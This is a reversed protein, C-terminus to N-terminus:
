NLLLVKIHVTNFCGSAQLLEGVYLDFLSKRKGEIKTCAIRM